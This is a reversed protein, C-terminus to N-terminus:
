NASTRRMRSFLGGRRADEPVRDAKEQEIYGLAHYANIFNVVDAITAGGQEAIEDLTSAQKLMVTAIRFHRPFERESQPWRSLKYRANVDLASELHGDGRVLHTLWKLRAYPHGPLTAVEAAFEKEDPSHVDSLTVARTCWASLAKLSSASHWSRDRPDLLLTPLGAAALRLCGKLPSDPHLLDLLCMGPPAAASMQPAFAVAATGIAVTPPAEPAAQLPAIPAPAEDAARTATSSAKEARSRIPIVHARSTGGLQTGVRNLLAVLETAVVPSRLWFETNYADPSNTCAAVLRGSSSAKLWDM